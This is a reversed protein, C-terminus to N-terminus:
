PGGPPPLELFGRIKGISGILGRLAKSRHSIAEKAEPRMQALTLRRGHPVFIPDYGFGHAGKPSTVRGLLRGTWSLVHPSDGKALVLATEFFARGSALPGPKGGRELAEGLRALLAEARQCDSLGPGGFRASLVGPAGGLAELCLGSDDALAPLGSLRAYHRAKIAANELFTGGNEEPSPFALGEDELTALTALGLGLRSAVGGLLGLFEKAKGPNSTAL